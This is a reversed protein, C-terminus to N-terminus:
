YSIFYKCGYALLRIPVNLWDVKKARWVMKSSYIVDCKPWKMAIDTQNKVLEEYIRLQDEGTPIKIWGLYGVQVAKVENTFEFLGCKSDDYIDMYKPDIDDVFNEM